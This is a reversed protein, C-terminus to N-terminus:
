KRRKATTQCSTLDHNFKLLTNDNKQNNNTYKHKECDRERKTCPLTSHCYLLKHKRGLRHKEIQVTRYCHHLLSAFSRGFRCSFILNSFPIIKWVQVVLAGAVFSLSLSFFNRSVCFRLVCGQKKNQTVRKKINPVSTRKMRGRNGSFGSTVTVREMTWCVFFGVWRHSSSVRLHIKEPSYCSGTM